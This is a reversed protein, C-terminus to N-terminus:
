GSRYAVPIILWKYICCRLATHVGIPYGRRRAHHDRRKRHVEVVEGRTLFPRDSLSGPLAEGVERLSAFSIMSKVTEALM